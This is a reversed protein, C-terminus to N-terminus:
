TTTVVALLLLLLLLLKLFCALVSQPKLDSLEQCAM